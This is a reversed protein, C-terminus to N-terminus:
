SRYLLDTFLTDEENFYHKSEWVKSSINTFNRNLLKRYYNRSRRQAYEDHFELDEIQRDLEKDTPVTLYLYKIRESLIPVIEELESKDLYQFVSTCIALDFRTNKTNSRKTWDLISENYLELKTSEVPKLKRSRAKNFAHLSPEVGCARYPIFEKMMSQFLYGYGFGLDIISSIDILELECFSKLYKTHQKANGIGDMSDPESYNTDWYEKDFGAM